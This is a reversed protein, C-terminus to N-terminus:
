ISIWFDYDELGSFYFEKDYGGSKGVIKKYFSTCTLINFKALTNFSFDALKWEGQKAGIKTTCYIVKYDNRM